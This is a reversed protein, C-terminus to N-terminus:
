SHRPPGILQTVLLPILRTKSVTHTVAETDEHFLAFVAHLFVSSVVTTGAERLFPTEKIRGNQIMKEVYEKIPKELIHISEEMLIQHFQAADNTAEKFYEDVKAFRDVTAQTMTILKQVEEVTYDPGNAIESITEKSNREVLRKMTAKLLEEKSSFYYYFVSPSADGVQKLIDTINTQAYGKSFFLKEAADLFVNQKIAPDQRKRM